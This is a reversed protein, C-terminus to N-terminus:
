SAVVVPISRLSSNLTPLRYMPCSLDELNQSKIGRTWLALKDSAIEISGDDRLIGLSNRDDSLAVTCKGIKGDARIVLSNTKAAYCVYPGNDNIKKPRMTDGLHLYLQQMIEGKDKGRLVKFTGTNPGGLNEIAKFFVTFRNDYGFDAKILDVLKYIDDLNEPTIHIRLVISFDLDTNKIALLNNWITRFSGEGNMRKRTKNHMEETGDLSVQFSTVDLSNLKRFIEEKLQFGNTTMDSLYRLNPYNMRLKQIFESIEYVIDKAALPEGGFWGIKLADLSDIRQSILKKIAEVINRKMKGISFDEYCYTCRFNCQETPLLILELSRNSILSIIKENSLM